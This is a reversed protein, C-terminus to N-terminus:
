KCVELGDLYAGSLAKTYSDEKEYDGYVNIRNDELKGIERNIGLRWIGNSLFKVVQNLTKDKDLYYDTKQSTDGSNFYFYYRKDEKVFRGLPTKGSCFYTPKGSIVGSEGEGFGIGAFYPIVYNKFSLYIGGVVALVVIVGIVIKIINEITLEM